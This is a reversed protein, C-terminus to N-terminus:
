LDYTQGKTMWFAKIVPHFLMKLLIGYGALSFMVAAIWDFLNVWSYRSSVCCSSLLTFELTCVKCILNFNHV